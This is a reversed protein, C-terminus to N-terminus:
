TTENTLQTLDLKRLRPCIIGAIVVTAVCMIGGFVAAPIVGMLRAAVGSEFEGLENSSGIFISNVASIRGRMADPSSLQVASTRVIMSVSDFAGSLGLAILSLLYNHSLSFVLICVGFGGVASFFWTGARRRIDRSTLWLSTLAAGVAPAARLVGLGKPGINLVEAAYVPLLATVGGFLVSVMDLSLAPFLIPHRVVFKAGSLLDERTPRQRHTVAKTEPNFQILFLVAAAMGLLLCVIFASGGIGLWGFFIGGLAPGSIRAIQMATTMWASAKPLFDREVMRPVISFTAPQFFARATGTIFSSVFLAFIQAHVSLHLWDMQSALLIIGSLLSIDVVRRFVILPRGRDVIYGAYLALGLAPVAEVLGILGLYLPDKTLNYMQWGLVIAQIQTAFTSLFRATMLRKFDAHM